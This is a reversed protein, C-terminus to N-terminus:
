DEKMKKNIFENCKGATKMFMSIVDSSLRLGTIQQWYYIESYQLGKDQSYIEFFMRHFYEVDWPLDADQFQMEKGTQEAIQIMRQRKSIGDKGAYDM